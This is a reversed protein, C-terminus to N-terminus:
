FFVIKRYQLASERVESLRRSEELEPSYFGCVRLFACTRAESGGQTKERRAPNPAALVSSCGQLPQGPCSKGVYTMTVIAVNDTLGEPTPKIGPRMTRLNCRCSSVTNGKPCNQEEPVPAPQAGASALPSIAPLWLPTAKEHTLGREFERHARNPRSRRTISYRPPELNM